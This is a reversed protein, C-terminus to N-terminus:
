EWRGWANEYLTPLVPNALTNVVTDARSEDAPFTFLGPLLPSSVYRLQSEPLLLAQPVAVEARKKGVVFAWPGGFSPVEVRYARSGPLAQRMTAQICAVVEPAYYSSSAQTVVVGGPTLRRQLLRYFARSYLKAMDASSPDPLDIFVADYYRTNQEVFSFADQHTLFVRPDDLAKRNLRVLKPLKRALRTIEPDLDVLDIRELAAYKLLERVALGDGGGLVLATRPPKPRLALPVHVLAEHYRYEDRSNFQLKGNLFLQLTGHWETLVIRQYPTQKTFVVQDEYLQNEFFGVWRFSYGFGVGLVVLFFVGSSLHANYRQLQRRFVLTNLLGVGVNIIGVLFATRLTGLVPLLVLPFVLAAVPAGLYDFALVRALADKLGAQPRLLRTLLPIELGVGMGILALLFGGLLYVETTFAYTAYMVVGSLGGVLGLLLEVQIFRDLLSTTFFRSLYAGVGMAALYVGITLSFQLVSNGLFYSALTGLLLEYLLGCVALLLASAYLVPLQAPSFVPPREGSSQPPM